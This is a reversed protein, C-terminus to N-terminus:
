WGVERCGERWVTMLDGETGDEREGGKGGERWVTMLDGETGDEREGRGEREGRRERGGEEKGGWYICEYIEGANDAMHSSLSSPSTVNRSSSSYHSIDRHWDEMDARSSCQFMCSEEQLNLVFAKKRDLIQVSRLTQM